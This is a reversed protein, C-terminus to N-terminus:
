CVDEHNLWTTAHTLIEKTKLALIEKYVVNQKDMWRGISMSSFKLTEELETIKGIESKGGTVENKKWLIPSDIISEKLPILKFNKTANKQLFIHNLSLTTSLKLTQLSCSTVQFPPLAQSRALSDERSERTAGSGEPSCIEKSDGNGRRYRPRKEPPEHVPVTLILPLLWNDM